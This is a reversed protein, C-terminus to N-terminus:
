RFPSKVPRCYCTWALSATSPSMTSTPASFLVGAHMLPIGLAIWLPGGQRPTSILSRVQQQSCAPRHLHRVRQWALSSRGALACEHMYRLAVDNVVYDTYNGCLLDLFNLHSSKSETTGFWTFNANDIQTDFGNRIERGSLGARWCHACYGFQRRPTFPEPAISGNPLLTQM